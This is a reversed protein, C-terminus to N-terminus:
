PQTIVASTCVSDASNSNLGVGEKGLLDRWKKIESPQSVVEEPLHNMATKGADDTASPDAGGDLLARAVELEATRAAFHLPCLGDEDMANVNANAELLLQACKSHGNRAAQMLPTLGEKRAGGPAKELPQSGLCVIVPRRTELNAGETIAESLASVDGECAARLLQQNIICSDILQDTQACCQMFLPEWNRMWLM